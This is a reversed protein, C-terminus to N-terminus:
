YDSCHVLLFAISKWLACQATRDATHLVWVSVRQAGFTAASIGCWRWRGCLKSVFVIWDTAFLDLNWHAHKFFCATSSKTGSATATDLKLVNLAKKSLSDYDIFVIRWREALLFVLNRSDSTLKSSRLVSVHYAQAIIRRAQTGMKAVHSYPWSVNKHLKSGNKTNNRNFRCM